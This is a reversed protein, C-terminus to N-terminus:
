GGARDFDARLLGMTVEDHWSGHEFHRQRQRGELVFGCKEYIHIAPANDPDANLEVRHLNRHMFAWRVLTRLADYGYGKNRDESRWIGLGVMATQNRAEIRFLDIDGVVRDDAQIIFELVDLSPEAVNTEFEREMTELSRPPKLWDRLLEGKGEVSQAAEWAARVDDREWARLIVREGALWAM